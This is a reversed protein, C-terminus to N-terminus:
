YWTFGISDSRPFCRCKIGPLFPRLWMHCGDRVVPVVQYLSKEVPVCMIVMIVRVDSLNARTFVSKKM